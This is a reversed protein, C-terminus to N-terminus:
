WFICRKVVRWYLRFFPNAIAEILFTRKGPIAIEATFPALFQRDGIQRNAAAQARAKWVMCLHNVNWYFAYSAWKARLRGYRWAFYWQGAEMVALAPALLLLTGLRYYVLLLWWRNRELHEYFKFEANFRYNHWVKSAPVHMVKWGAQRLKWGLEADELYMFFHSTFLGLADVVSRRILLAAGSAYCMESPVDFPPRLTEGGLQTFGFGLFHSVNGVTNIRDAEDRLFLTPQVCATKPHTNLYDVLGKLWDPSVVVDQNVLALYEVSPFIAKACMWAHNNGEAFGLNDPSCILAAQPFEKAMFEAVDVSSANDFVLVHMDAHPGCSAYLSTLCDRLEDLNNYSVVLVAVGNGTEVENGSKVENGTKVESPSDSERPLSPHAGDSHPFPPSFARHMRLELSPTHEGLTKSPEAHEPLRPAGSLTNSVNAIM